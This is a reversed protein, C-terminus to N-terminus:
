KHINIINQNDFSNLSIIRSILILISNYCKYPVKACLLRVIVELRQRAVNVDHPAVEVLVVSPRFLLDNGDALELNPQAVSM